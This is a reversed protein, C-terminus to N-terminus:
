WAYGLGIDGHLSLHHLDFSGGAVPLDEAYALVLKAEILASWGRGIEHRRGVALQACAGSLDYGDDGTTFAGNRNRTRGRVESVTHTVLPGIGIRVVAWGFDEARNVFVLNFGDTIELHQIEDPGDELHMTHHVVEVEWASADSWRGLRAGYYPPADWPRTTFEATFDLTREGDQEIRVPVPANWASGTFLDARWVVDAAPAEAIIALAVLTRLTHM